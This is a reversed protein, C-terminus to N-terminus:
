WKENRVDDINDPDCYKIEWGAPIGWTITEGLTVSGEINDINGNRYDEPNWTINKNLIITGEEAVNTLWNNSIRKSLPINAVLFTVNNLLSCNSFASKFYDSYATLSEAYAISTARIIVKKLYKCSSAFTNLAGYQISKYPIDLEEISTNYFANSFCQVSCSDKAFFTVKKLM